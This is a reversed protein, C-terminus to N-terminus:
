AEVKHEVLMIFNPIFLILMIFNFHNVTNCSYYSALNLLSTFTFIFEYRM